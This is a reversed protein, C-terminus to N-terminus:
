ALYLSAEQSLSTGRLRKIQALVLGDQEQNEIKDLTRILDHMGLVQSEALDDLTDVTMLAERVSSITDNDISTM